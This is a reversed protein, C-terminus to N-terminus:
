NSEQDFPVVIKVNAISANGVKDTATITVTYERGTGTDFRDAMFKM